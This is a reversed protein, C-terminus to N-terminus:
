ICILYELCSLTHELLPRNIDLPVPCGGTVVVVSARGGYGGYDVRREQSERQEKKVRDASSSSIRFKMLDFFRVRCQVNQRYASEGERSYCNEQYERSSEVQFLSVLQCFLVCFPVNMMQKDDNNGRYVSSDHHKPTKRFTIDRRMILGNGGM